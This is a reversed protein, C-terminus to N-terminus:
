NNQANQIRHLQVTSPLGANAINLTTKPHKKLQLKVSIYLTEDEYYPNVLKQSSKVM